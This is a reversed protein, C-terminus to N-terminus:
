PRPQRQEPLPVVVVRRAVEALAQQIDAVRAADVGVERPDPLFAVPASAMPPATPARVGGTEAVAAAAARDVALVWASLAASAAEAAREAARAAVRASITGSVILEEATTELEVAIQQLEAVRLPRRGTEIDSLASHQMGLRRALERMTLGRALRATRIRGGMTADDLSQAGTVECHLWM